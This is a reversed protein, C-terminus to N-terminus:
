FGYHKIYISVYVSSWIYQMVFLLNRHGQNRICNLVEMPIQYSQIPQAILRTIESANELAGSCFM